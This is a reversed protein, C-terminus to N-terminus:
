LNLQYEPDIMYNRNLWGFLFSTAQNIVFPSSKYRELYIANIWMESVNCSHLWTSLITGNTQNLYTSFVVNHFEAKGISLNRGDPYRLKVDAEVYMKANIRGTQNLSDTKNEEFPHLDWVKRVWFTFDTPVRKGYRTTLFPFLAEMTDTEFPAVDQDMYEAALFEYGFPNKDLYAFLASELFYNSIFLQVKSAINPDQMPMAVPQVVPPTKYGKDKNFM